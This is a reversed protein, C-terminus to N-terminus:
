MVHDLEWGLLGERRGRSEWTMGVEFKAETYGAFYQLTCGLAEDVKVGRVGFKYMRSHVLHYLEKAPDICALRRHAIAYRALLMEDDLAMILGDVCEQVEAEARAEARAKARARREEQIQPDAALQLNRATDKLNLASRRPLKGERVISAWMDTAGNHRDMGDRLIAVEEDTWRNRKAM